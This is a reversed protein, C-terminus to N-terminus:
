PRAPEWGVSDLRTRYFPITRYAHDLLKTLQRLQNEEIQEPTWWQSQDLQYLIGLVRSAEAGPVAPWAVDALSSRFSPTSKM